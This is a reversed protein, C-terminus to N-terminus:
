KEKSSNISRTFTSNWRRSYQHSGSDYNGKRGKGLSHKIQDWSNRGINGTSNKRRWRGKVEKGTIISEKSGSKKRRSKLSYRSNEVQDEIKGSHSTGEVM